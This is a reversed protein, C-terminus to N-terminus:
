AKGWCECSNCPKGKVFLSSTGDCVLDKFSTIKTKHTVLNYSRIQREFKELVHLVPNNNSDYEIKMDTIDLSNNNEGRYLDLTRVESSNTNPDNINELPYYYITRKKYQKCFYIIKNKSDIAVAEITANDTCPILDAIISNLKVSHIPKYPISSKLNISEIKRYTREVSYWLDGNYIELAEIDDGIIQHELPKLKFTTMDLTDINGEDSAVYINGNEDSCIASLEYADKELQFFHFQNQASISVTFICSFFLIQSLRLRQAVIFGQLILKSKKM